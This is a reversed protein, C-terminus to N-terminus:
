QAGFKWLSSATRIVMEGASLAPTAFCQEDLDNVGLIQWDLGAKLLEHNINAEDVTVTSLIRGYCDRGSWVVIAIKEFCLKSTFQKAKVGFAQWSEPCDIGALRITESKGDRLVKVTDGDTVGVVKGTFTEAFSVTTHLLFTLILLHAAQM